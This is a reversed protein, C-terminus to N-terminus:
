SNCKRKNNTKIARVSEMGRREIDIIDIYFSKTLMNKNSWTEKHLGYM